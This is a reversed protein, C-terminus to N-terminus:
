DPFANKLVADVAKSYETVIRDSDQRISPYVFYGADKGNGKWPEFQNFGLYTGSSRRRRLDQGAGFEAGSAFPYRAGGFAVGASTAGGVGKISPATKAAIGGLSMAAGRADNAVFNAVVKSAAGLAKPFEPGLAKLAKNLERLGEVSVTGTKIKSARAM